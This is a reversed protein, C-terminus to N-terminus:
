PHSARPTQDARDAFAQVFSFHFIRRKAKRPSNNARSPSLNTKSPSGSAEAPSLGAERPSSSAKFFSHRGGSALVGGRPALPGGQFTFSRGELVVPRRELSLDRRAPRVVRRHAHRFLLTLCGEADKGPCYVSQVLDGYVSGDAAHPGARKSRLRLVSEAAERQIRPLGREKVVSTGGPPATGEGGPLGRSLAGRRGPRVPRTEELLAPVARLAGTILHHAAPGRFDLPKSARACPVPLTVGRHSLPCALQRLNASEKTNNNQHEIVVMRRRMKM